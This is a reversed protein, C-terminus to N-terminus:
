SARRRAVTLGAALLLLGAPEPFATATFTATMQTDYSFQGYGVDLTEGAVVLASATLQGEYGVFGSPALHILSTAERNVDLSLHLMGYIPSEYLGQFSLRLPTGAPLEPTTGITLHSPALTGVECNSSLSESTFADLNGGSSGSTFSIDCHHGGDTVSASNTGYQVWQTGPPEMLDIRAYVSCDFTLPVSLPDALAGSRVAVAFAVVAV